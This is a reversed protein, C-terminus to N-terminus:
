PGTLRAATPSWGGNTIEVTSNLTGLNELTAGNVTLGSGGVTVAGGAAISLTGSGLGTGSITAFDNVTLSGSVTFIRASQELSLVNATQGSSLAPDVSAGLGTRNIVVPTTAGPTTNTSWNTALLFDSSFFGDWTAM